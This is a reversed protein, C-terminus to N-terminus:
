RPPPRRLRCDAARVGQRRDRRQDGDRRQDIIAVPGRSLGARPAVSSPPAPSPPAPSPGGPAQRNASWAACRAAIFSNGWGNAQAAKPRVPTPWQGQGEPARSAARPDQARHKNAQHDGDRDGREGAGAHERAPLRARHVREEEQAVPHGRGLDGQDQDVVVGELGEALALGERPAVDGIQGVEQELAARPHHREIEDEGRGGHGRLVLREEGGDAAPARRAGARQEEGGERHGGALVGRVAVGQQRGERRLQGPQHAEGVRRDAGVPHHPAEGRDQGPRAAPPQGRQREGGEGCRGTKGGRLQRM